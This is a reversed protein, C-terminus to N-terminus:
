SKSVCDIIAKVPDGTTILLRWRFLGCNAVPPTTTINRMIGSVGILVM